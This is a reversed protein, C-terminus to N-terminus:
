KVPSGKKEILENLRPTLSKMISDIYVDQPHMLAVGSPTFGHKKIYDVLALTDRITTTEKINLGAM